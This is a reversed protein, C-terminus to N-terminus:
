KKYSIFNSDTIRRLNAVVQLLFIFTLCNNCTCFQIDRRHDMLSIFIYLGTSLLYTDCM